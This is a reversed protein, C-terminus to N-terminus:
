NWCQVTEVGSDFGFRTSRLQFVWHDTSADGRNVEIGRTYWLLQFSFATEFRDSLLVLDLHDLEFVATATILFCGRCIRQRPSYLCLLANLQCPHTSYFDSRCLTARSPSSCVFDARIWDITFVSLGSYSKFEVQDGFLLLVLRSSCVFCVRRTARSHIRSEFSCVLKPAPM